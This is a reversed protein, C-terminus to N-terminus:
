HSEQDELQSCPAIRANSRYGRNTDRVIFNTSKGNKHSNDLTKQASRYQKPTMGTHKKFVHAFYQTSSFGLSFCIKTISFNTTELLERAKDCRLRSLYLAPSTGIEKKFAESFRAASLGLSGAIDPVSIDRSINKNMFDIAKNALLHKKLRPKCGVLGEACKVLLTSVLARVSVKLLASSPQFKLKRMENLLMKLISVIEKEMEASANGVQTFLEYLADRESESVAADKILTSTSPELVIWFLTSPSIIGWQGKHPTRPQTIAMSGGSLKLADGSGVTVEWCVEGSIIFTLEFGQHRHTKLAIPNLIHDYGISKVMPFDFQKGLLSIRPSTNKKM